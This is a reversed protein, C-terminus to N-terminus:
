FFAKDKTNLIFAAKMKEDKDNIKSAIMSRFVAMAKAQDPFKNNRAYIVSQHRLQELAAAEAQAKRKNQMTEMQVQREHRLLELQAQREERIRINEQCDQEKAALKAKGVEVLGMLANASSPSRSKKRHSCPKPSFPAPQKGKSPETPLSPPTPTGPSELLVIPAVAQDPICPTEAGTSRNTEEQHGEPPDCTPPMDVNLQEDLALDEKTPGATQSRKTRAVRSGRVMKNDANRGDELKNMLKYNPFGKNKFSKYKPNNAIQIRWWEDSAVIMQNKDDWGAGTFGMLCDFVKYLTRQANYHNKLALIDYNEHYQKNFDQAVSVWVEKKFVNEVRAGNNAQELLSRLLFDSRGQGFNAPLAKKPEQGM